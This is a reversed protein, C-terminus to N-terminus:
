CPNAGRSKVPSSTYYPRVREQSVQIGRRGTQDQPAVQAKGGGLSGSRATGVDPAPRVAEPDRGWTITPPVSGPLVVIKKAYLYLQGSSKVAPSLVLRSGPHLVITDTTLVEEEFAREGEVEFRASSLDLYGLVTKMVRQVESSDIPVPKVAFPDQVQELKLVLLILILARM